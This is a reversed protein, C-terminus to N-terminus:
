VSRRGNSQAQLDASAKADAAITANGQLAANQAMLERVQQQLAEFDEKSVTAMSKNPVQGAAIKDMAKSFQNILVAGFDFGEYRDLNEIPHAWEERHKASIAEAEANLPEMDPTPDGSFIVDMPHAPDFENSVIVLTGENFCTSDDPDLFTPVNYVKRRMKKTREDTERREWISEHEGDPNVTNLYHKQTLRWRASM